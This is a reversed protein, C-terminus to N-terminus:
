SNNQILKKIEDLTTGLRDVKHTLTKYNARAENQNNRIETQNNRMETQNGQGLAILTELIDQMSQFKDELKKDIIRLLKADGNEQAM